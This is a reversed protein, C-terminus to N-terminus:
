RLEEAVLALRDGRPSAALRTLKGIGPGQVTAVPVWGDDTTPVHRLLTNGQATLLSGDKLWVFFDAGEPMRILRRTAADAIAVETLWWTNTAVLQAVSVARRGPVPQLARGIGSLLIRAEGTSFDAVQLTAPSGLVFLGVTNADIWAQYGVPKINPFLLRPARCEASPVRCEALPFAWLRQTSDEEVRVVALEKGGPMVIPSYESEKTATFATVRGSGLDVRFIDAQTSGNPGGDRIATFYVARGDPAFFPQNDYGPRGTLNKLPGLSPTGGKWILPALHIDTGPPPGQPVAAATPIAGLAIVVVGRM